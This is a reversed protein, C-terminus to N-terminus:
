AHMALFYSARLRQPKAIGMMSHDLSSWAVKDLLVWFGLLNTDHDAPVLACGTSLTRLKLLGASCHTLAGTIWKARSLVVEFPEIEKEVWNKFGSRRPSQGSHRVSRLSPCWCPALAMCFLGSLVKM